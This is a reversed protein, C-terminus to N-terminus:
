FSGGDIEVRSSTHSILAELVLGLGDHLNNGENPDIGLKTLLDRAKKDGVLQILSLNTETM